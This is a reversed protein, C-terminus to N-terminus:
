TFHFTKPVDQQNGIVPGAFRGEIPGHEQRLFVARPQRYDGHVFPKRLPQSGQCSAHEGLLRLLQDRPLLQIQKILEDRRELSVANLDVGFREDAGRKDLDYSLDDPASM